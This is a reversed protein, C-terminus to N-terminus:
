PRDHRAPAADDQVTLGRAAETLLPTMVAWGVALVALAQITDPFVGAGLRVAGLYSAPGSIAGLLAALWPRGHLWALPGRVISAFLAWLALIWVPAWGEVPGPSAYVLWGSRLLFTDWVLGLVLAGAILALDVRRGASVSLQLVLVVGVALLGWGVQGNAAGLVCAFWAIQFVLFQGVLVM